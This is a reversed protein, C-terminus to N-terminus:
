KLVPIGLLVDGLQEKGFKIQFRRFRRSRAYDGSDAFGLAKGSIFASFVALVWPKKILTIL